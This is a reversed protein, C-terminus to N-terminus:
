TNLELEESKRSMNEVHVYKQPFYQEMVITNSLWTVHHNAM